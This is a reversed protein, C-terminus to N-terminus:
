VKPRFGISVMKLGLTRAEFNELGLGLFKCQKLDAHRSFTPVGGRFLERRMGLGGDGGLSGVFPGAAM